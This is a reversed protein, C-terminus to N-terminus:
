DPNSTDTKAVRWRASRRSEGAKEFYMGEFVAGKMGRILNGLTRPTPLENNRSKRLAVAHLAPYEDPKAKIIQLADEATHGGGDPGGGPLTMWGELLCLKDLRDPSEKAATERTACCDMGCEKNEPDLGLTAWWVAGRVMLDWAEFSGLLPMDGRPRGALAHAKLITLVDRVLDSRHERIYARLDPVRIDRRQEPCEEKSAINVPLWRRYADKAPALNNGSLFWCTRMQIRGTNESVGLIRDDIEISTLASDLGSSGYTSGEDLNDLHVMAKGSLGISVKVKKAEEPDTPYNSTPVIRGTTILGVVDILLGKGCGARTGNVAFGPVAGSIAPRSTATLVAALFVAKDDETAFPFDGVIDYLHEVAHKADEQTPNDPLPLFDVSPQYFTATHGDYGPTEVISGDPRPFPCESVAVLPRVGPWHKCERVTKVLWAPPHCDVATEEGNRDKKWQFFNIKRTLWTSLESEGIRVIKPTGRTEKFTIGQFSITANPETTIKVLHEGRWFLGDLGPLIGLVQSVVEYQRTSVEIDAPKLCAERYCDRMRSARQKGLRKELGSLGRVIGDHGELTFATLEHWDSDLNARNDRPIEQRLRAFRVLLDAANSDDLHGNAHVAGNKTGNSTSM